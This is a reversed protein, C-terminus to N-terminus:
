CPTRQIQLSHAHSSARRSVEYIVKADLLETLLSLAEDNFNEKMLKLARLYESAAITEQFIGSFVFFFFM